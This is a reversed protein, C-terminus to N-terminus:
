SALIHNHILPQCHPPQCLGTTGRYCVERQATALASCLVCVGRRAKARSCPVNCGVKNLILHSMASHFPTFNSIEMPQTVFPHLHPPHLEQTAASSKWPETSRTGMSASSLEQGARFAASHMKCKCFTRNLVSWTKEAM